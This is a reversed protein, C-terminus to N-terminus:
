GSVSSNRISKGSMLAHGKILCMSFLIYIPQIYGHSLYYIDKFNLVLLLIVTVSLINNLYFKKKNALGFYIMYVYPAYLILVGLIGGGSIFLVWGIDSDIYNEGRGFNGTGFIIEFIDHSFIFM